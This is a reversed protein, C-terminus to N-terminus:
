YPLEMKRVDNSYQKRILNISVIETNRFSVPKEIKIKRYKQIFSQYQCKFFLYCLLDEHYYLLYIFCFFLIKFVDSFFFYLWISYIYISFVLYM